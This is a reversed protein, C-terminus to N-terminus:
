VTAKGNVNCFYRLALSSNHFSLYKVMCAFFIIKLVDGLLFWFQFCVKQKSKTLVKNNYNLM